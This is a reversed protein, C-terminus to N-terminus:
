SDVNRKEECDMEEQRNVRASRGPDKVEERKTEGLVGEPIPIRKKENENSSKTERREVWTPHGEKKHPNKPGLM